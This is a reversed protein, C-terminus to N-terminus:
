QNQTQKSQWTLEKFSKAAAQKAIELGDSKGTTYGKDFSYEVVKIYEDETLLIPFERISPTDTFRYGAPRLSRLRDILQKLRNIM